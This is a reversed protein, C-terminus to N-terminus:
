KVAGAAAWASRREDRRLASSRTKSGSRLAVASRQMKGVDGADRVEDAGEQADVRVDDAGAVHERLRVPMPLVAPMEVPQDGDGDAERSCGQYM